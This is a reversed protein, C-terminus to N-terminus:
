LSDKRKDKFKQSNQQKLTDKLKNTGCKECKQLICEIWPFFTNYDCFSTDVCDALTRSIGTMYKNSEEVVADFNKCKKCCSQHYPIKGQLKFNKPRYKYYAAVSIKQTTSALMNYIHRIMSSCFFRINTVKRDPLPFTVENSKM